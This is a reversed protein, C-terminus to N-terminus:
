HTQEARRPKPFAKVQGISAFTVALSGSITGTTKHKGTKKSTYKASGSIADAGTISATKLGPGIKYDTAPLNKAYYTYLFAWGNGNPEKQITETVKNSSNKFVDVFPSGTMNQVEYGSSKPSCHISATSITAKQFTKQTITGLNDAKLTYSGSLKGSRSEGGHGHCGKPVKVQHPSGTAHFAMNISGRGKAFTGKITVFQLARTSTGTSFALPRGHTSSFTYNDNETASGNHKFLINQIVTPNRGGYAAPSGQQIFATFLFGKNGKHIPTTKIQCTVHSKKSCPLRTVAMSAAPFILGGVVAGLVVLSRRVTFAPRFIRAIM